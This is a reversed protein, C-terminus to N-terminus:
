QKVAQRNTQNFREPKLKRKGAKGLAQELARTAAECDVGVYGKAEIKTEGEPTIIIEITKM